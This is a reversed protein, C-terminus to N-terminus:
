KNEMQDLIYSFSPSSYDIGDLVTIENAINMAEFGDKMNNATFLLNGSSYEKVKTFRSSNNTLFEDFETETMTSKIFFKNTLFGVDGETFFSPTAYDVSVISNLNKLLELYETETIGSKLSIYTRYHDEITSKELDIESYQELITIAQNKSYDSENFAILIMQPNIELHIISDGYYYHIEKSFTSLENVNEKSCSFCTLLFLFFLALNLNTKPKMVTKEKKSAM